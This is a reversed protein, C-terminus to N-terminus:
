LKKKELTEAKKKRMRKDEQASERIKNSDCKIQGNVATM